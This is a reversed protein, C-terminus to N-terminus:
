INKLAPIRMLLAIILTMVFPMGLLDVGPTAILQAANMNCTFPFPLFYIFFNGAVTLIATIVVAWILLPVTIKLEEFRQSSVSM